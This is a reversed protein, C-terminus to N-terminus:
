KAGVLRADSVGATGGLPGLVTGFLISAPTLVSLFHSAKNGVGRFSLIPSDHNVLGDPVVLDGLLKAFAPHTDGVLGLPGEHLM